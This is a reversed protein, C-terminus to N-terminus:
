RYPASLVSGREEDTIFFSKSVMIGNQFDEEASSRSSKLRLSRESDNDTNHASKKSNSQTNNFWNPSKPFSGPQPAPEDDSTRTRVTASLKYMDPRLKDARSGSAPVGNAPLPASM